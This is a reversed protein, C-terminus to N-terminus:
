YSVRSPHQVQLTHTHTHTHSKENSGYAKRDAGSKKPSNIIRDKIEEKRGKRQIKM